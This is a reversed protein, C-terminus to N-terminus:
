GMIDTFINAEEQPLRPAPRARKAPKPGPAPAVRRPRVRRQAAIRNMRAQHSFVSARRLRKEDLTLYSLLVGCCLTLDYWFASLDEAPAAIFNATFSSALVFLALSLAALRLAAGIMFWIALALLGIEGAAESIEPDLLPRFLVATDFGDVLDLAVAMFFTGTVVRLLNVGIQDVGRTQHQNM